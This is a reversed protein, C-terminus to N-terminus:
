GLYSVEVKLLEMPREPLNMTSHLKGSKVDLSVAGNLPVVASIKTQVGTGIKFYAAWVSMKGHIETAVSVVVDSEVTIKSPINSLASASLSPQTSLGVSGKASVVVPIKLEVTLPIGLETPITIETDGAMLAKRYDVPLRGRMLGVMESPKLYSDTIMKIISKPTLTLFRVEQGFIKFFASGKIDQDISNPIGLIRDIEDLEPHIWSKREGSRYRMSQPNAHSFPGYNNTMEDDDIDNANM